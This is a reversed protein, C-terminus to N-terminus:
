SGGSAALCRRRRSTSTRPTACCRSRSTPAPRSSRRTRSSTRRASRGSRRSSFSGAMVGAAPPSGIASGNAGHGVVSVGTQNRVGRPEPATGSGRLAARDPELAMQAAFSDRIVDDSQPADDFPEVNIKILMALSRATFTVAGFVMAQDAVAQGETRWGPTPEGELRPYSLTQSTMPVTRAGAQFVRAANRARDIVDTAVPLRERCTREGATM